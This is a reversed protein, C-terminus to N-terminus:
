KNKIKIMALKLSVSMREVAKALDGIEDKRSSDALKTNLRGKSISDAAKAMRKIPSSLNRSLFLTMVVSVLLTSSLLYFWYEKNKLVQSYADEYDQEFILKWGHAIEKRYVVKRVDNSEYFFQEKGIANKVTPHDSLDHMKEFVIRTNGHAVVRNSDDLLMAFGTEGVLVEEIESSITTLKMAVCLGGALQSERGIKTIPVCMVLAPVGLRRSMLVQKGVPSGSALEQMYERDGRFYKKEGNADLTSKNDGRSSIYGEADIIFASYAWEYSELLTKLIPKQEGEKFSRIQPIKANQQLVRLNLDLWNDFSLGLVEAKIKLDLEVKEIENESVVNNALWLGALPISVSIVIVVLIKYVLSNFRIIKTM